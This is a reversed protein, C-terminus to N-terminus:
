WRGHAASLVSIAAAGATSTRLVTDGLRRASRQSIVEEVAAVTCTGGRQIAFGMTAAALLAVLYAASAPDLRM